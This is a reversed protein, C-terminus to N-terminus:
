ELNLSTVIEKVSNEDTPKDVDKYLEWTETHTVSENPKLKTIPALTELELFKDNCYCESSSGFDYYNMNSHYTARKVFLTKHNWYALWGRPNPFGIKFPTQMEARVLIYENGWTVHPSNIDAYSWLALSRNPLMGADETIQPLIAVGGPKFQTIAWPAFEVEWLNRNTLTHHIIVQPKDEILKIEISKEIGTEAEVQQSVRLSNKEGVIEVPQDDLVYTRPMHEPSHWLRHGGYFHFDKGDPRTTIFNPLEALLNEGDNFRLSIIRPGISQTVLLSIDGNKLEVCEYGSFKQTQM